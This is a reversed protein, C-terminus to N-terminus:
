LHSLLRRFYRGTKARFTSSHDIIGANAGWKGAYARLRLLDENGPNGPSEGQYIHNDASMPMVVLRNAVATPHDGVVEPPGTRIGDDSTIDETDTFHEYILSLILLPIVIPSLVIAALLHDEIQAMHDQFDVLDHTGSTFYTAHSGAAIYVTFPVVDRARQEPPFSLPPDIFKFEDADQFEEHVCTMMFQPVSRLLANEDNPAVNFLSRDFVLCCGENDGEHENAFIADPQYRNFDNFAYFFDYELFTFRKVANWATRSLRYGAPAPPTEGNTEEAEILKLLFKRLDEFPLFAPPSTFPTVLSSAIEVAGRLGDPPYNADPAAALLEYKLLEFLNLLSGMVTIRPNGDEGKARPEFPNGPGPQPTDALTEFGGFFQDSSSFRAGHTVVADDDVAEDGLGDRASVGASIVRVVSKAVVSQGTQEVIFGDPVLVVPPEFPQRVGTSDTERVFLNVLLEEKASTPLAGFSDDIMTFMEDMAIPYFKEAEYFFMDPFWHKALKAVSEHTLPSTLGLDNETAFQQLRPIDAM